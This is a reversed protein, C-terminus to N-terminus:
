PFPSGGMSFMYRLPFNLKPFSQSGETHDDVAENQSGFQKPVRRQPQPQGLELGGEGGVDLRLREAAERSTADRLTIFGAM